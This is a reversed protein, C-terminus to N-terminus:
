KTFPGVEWIWVGLYLPFSNLLWMAVMKCVMHFEPLKKSHDWALNFNLNYLIWNLIPTTNRFGPISFIYRKVRCLILTKNSHLIWSALSWIRCIFEMNGAKSLVTNQVRHIGTSNSILNNGFITENKINFRFIHWVHHSAPIGQSLMSDVPSLMYM